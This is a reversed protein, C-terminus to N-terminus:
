KLSYSFSPAKVYSHFLVLSVWRREYDLLNLNPFQHLVSIYTFPWSNGYQLKCLWGDMLCLVHDPLKNIPQEDIKNSSIGQDATEVSRQLTM